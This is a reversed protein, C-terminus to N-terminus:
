TKKCIADPLVPASEISLGAKQGISYFQYYGSGDPFNFNWSWASSTDIGFITWPLAGTSNWTHLYICDIGWIDQNTDSSETDGILQITYTSSTLGTATFNNWGTSTITGLNTWSGGGNRYNVKLSESGTHSDVYICVEENDRDYEATTWQYEFDTEYNNGGSGSVGIRVHDIRVDDAGFLGGVRVYNFRVRLNNIESITHSGLDITDYTWSTHQGINGFNSGSGSGTYDVIVEAYDDGAGDDNNCYITININLSGTLTTNPFDFWGEDVGNSMTRIYSVPQNQSDLYPSSGIEVWGTYTFDYSDCDLWESIGGGGTNEEQISMLASDPGTDQANAFDTEVGKDSSSDENSSNNDITNNNENSIVGSWSSNDNNWRYYLTVNDLSASGTATLSRPSIPSEYPIIDDVFTNISLISGAGESFIGSTVISNSDIDIINVEIRKGELDISPNSYVLKEGVSWFGDNNIDNYLYDGTNVPDLSIDDVKLLIKSELSLPKGGYHGVIINDGDLQCIINATPNPPSQPVTLVSIYVISFLGISISLLLMTGLIETVAQNKILNKGSDKKIM